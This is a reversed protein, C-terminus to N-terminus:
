VTIEELSKNLDAESVEGSAEADKDGVAVTAPESRKEFLRQPNIVEAKTLRITLHRIIDNRHNIETTVGELMASSLSFRVWGLWSSTFHMGRGEIAKTMEYALTFRQPEEEESVDGQHDTIIKKIEGVVRPVEGDAITPLLHFACEYQDKELLDIDQAEVAPMTNEDM